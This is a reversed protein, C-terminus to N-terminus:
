NEGGFLIAGIGKETRYIMRSYWNEAIMSKEIRKRM